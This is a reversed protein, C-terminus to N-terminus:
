IRPYPIIWSSDVRGWPHLSLSLSLIPGPQIPTLTGTVSRLLPGYFRSRYQFGPLMESRSAAGRCHEASWVLGSLILLLLGHSSHWNGYCYATATCFHACASPLSAPRRRCRAVVAAEEESTAGTGAEAAEEQQSSRSSSEKGTRPERHSACAAPAGAM